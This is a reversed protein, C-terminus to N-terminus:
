SRCGHCPHPNQASRDRSRLICRRLSRMCDACSNTINHVVLGTMRGRGALGTLKQQHDQFPPAPIALQQCGALVYCFCVFGPYALRAFTSVIGSVYAFQKSSVKTDLVNGTDSVIDAPSSARQLGMAPDPLSMDSAARCPQLMWSPRPGWRAQLQQSQPPRTLVRSYNSSTRTVVAPGSLRLRQSCRGNDACSPM